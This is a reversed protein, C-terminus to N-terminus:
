SFVGAEWLIKAAIAFLVASGLIQVFEAARPLTRVAFAGLFLGLATCAACCVAIILAPLWIAYNLMAFSFGVALADISTAVALLLLTVGRTPDSKGSPADDGQLADKLMNGAVFILLAAAIWPAYHEVFHKLSVGFYWGIVPMAGQFLGFAGAMRMSRRLASERPRELADKHPNELTNGCSYQSAKHQPSMATKGYQGGCAVAVAFADASLALALIFYEWLSM